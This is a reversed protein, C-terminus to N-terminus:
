NSRLLLWVAERSAFKDFSLAMLRDVVVVILSRPLVHVGSVVDVHAEVGGVTWM